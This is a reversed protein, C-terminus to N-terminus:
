EGTVYGKTKLYSIVSRANSRDSGFVFFCIRDFTAKGGLRGLFHIVKYGMVTRYDNGGSGRVSHSISDGKDTLAIIELSM